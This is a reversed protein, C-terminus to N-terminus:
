VNTNNPEVLRARSAIAKEGLAYGVAEERSMSAGAAWAEVGGPERRASELRGSIERHFPSSPVVAIRRRLSEAAGGLRLARDTDAHAAAVAALSELLNAITRNNGDIRWTRLSEGLNAEAEALRGEWLALNGLMLLSMAVMETDSQERGLKLSASIHEGAGHMDRDFVAVMGLRWFCISRIRQFGGDTAIDLAESLFSRARGYDEQQIAIQGLQQLSAAEGERDKLKRFLLLSQECYASETSLDGQAGTMLALGLLVHARSSTPKPSLQLAAELHARGESYDGRSDWFDVLAAALRVILDAPLVASNDFVARLNDMESSLRQQWDTRQPGSLRPRAAEALQVFYTSHRRQAQALEGHEILRERGYERVTELVAYRTPSEGTEHPTVLSKDVLQGVLEVVPETEGATCVAEAADLTFGGAFVSLQRLLLKEDEDLLWYSWDMAAKLTEHRSDASLSGGALLAFSDQLRILIEAPAMMRARGAALEVALPIGEVRRCIGAVSQANDENLRFSPQVAASREAFLIVAEAEPLPGVRLIAEGNVRLAARSTALLRVGPCERLLRDALRVVPQVLHECNDLVLLLNKDGLWDCLTKIVPRGAEERVGLAEAATQPVLEPESLAALEVLWAGDRYDDILDAAAQLALRTKGTGGAGTLTVMRNAALRRKIAELDDERGIFRTAAIPLNQRRPDLSKLPPFSPRLGPAVLQFIREPRELDRLRHSGLDRLTAGEPMADVVLNHTAQSLLVQDGYGTVLIRACRYVAPGYYHASRLEAEGSHIAVRIHLDAGDPWDQAAFERQVEVACAVADTARTFAAFVSDGERGSEVQKGGHAGVLRGLVEDHTAMARRMAAPHHEWRRTSGELDTLMFAVTGAPLAATGASAALSSHQQLIRKLLSQLSPGPEMGLEDVLRQRTRQYLDSAEAQRGSRYLALMLQGCLRERLPNEEVLSQLEGILRDHWGLALEAELREEVAHLRLENLRAAEGLAFSEGAFDALAPGRWLSLAHTLEAAAEDPAMHRAKDVRAQFNASDLEDEAVQLLYGSPKRVLIRYPAGGPELARRLQSVYVEIIHDSTPPPEPGWLLEALRELGVVHNAQTLLIALLARQKAGGLALPKGDRRVELPGLVRFEMQPGTCNHVWIRTLQRRGRPDCKLLNQASRSRGSLDQQRRNARGVEALLVLHCGEVGSLQATEVHGGIELHGGHALYLHVKGQGALAPSRQEGLV